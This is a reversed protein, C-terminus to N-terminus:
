RTLAPVEETPKSKDGPKGAEDSRFVTVAFYGHGATVKGQLRHPGSVKPCYELSVVSSKGRQSSARRNDPGWLYLAFTKVTEDGVGSFWYCYRGDLELTWEERDDERYALGRLIDGMQHGKQESSAIKAEETARSELWDPPVATKPEEEPHCGLVGISIFSVLSALSACAFRCM